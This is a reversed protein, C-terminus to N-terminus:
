RKKRMLVGRRGGRQIKVARGNGGVRRGGGGWRKRVEVVRKAGVEGVRGGWMREVMRGM